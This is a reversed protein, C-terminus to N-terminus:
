AEPVGLLSEGDAKRYAERARERSTEANALLEDFGAQDRLTEFWPDVRLPLPCYFGRGVVVDRMVDLAERGAGARSLVRAFYFHFEPDTLGHPVSQRYLGVCEDRRGEIAAIIAQVYRKVNGEATGKADVRAVRLAHEDDESLAKLFDRDEVEDMRGVQFYTHHVSTVLGPDLRLGREHAAISAEYLGCFRCAAVLGGFLEAESVRDRIRALLRTMVGIPDSGHELEFFAYYRHVLPMDPHLEIARRFAEEAIRLHEDSDALGFKAIKRCVRGYRAWAPAFTPDEDLCSRLLDRLATNLTRAYGASGEMHIARLFLEYARPTAPVDRELSARERPSLPIRIGEVVRRTLEDQLEFLDGLPVDEKISWVVTGEPVEVLQASLRVKPGASLLSGRLAFDVRVESALEQLDPEGNEVSAVGTSRVVLHELGALSAGIAEPLSAALFDIEPDPRLLRFPLAVFRFIQGATAADAIRQRGSVGTRYRGHASALAEATVAASEYRDGPEKALAKRVVADLWEIGPPGAIPPPDEFACAHFVDLPDDGPFAYGGALMEYLIAGFSFIDTWPGMERVRWQEPAMYHPTGVIANEQTLRTGPSAERPVTLSFDLLKVGHPTLFVNGPKLDRHILGRGHLYGLPALIGLGVEIAERVRFRSRDLREALTEGELLEMAVWLEGEEERVDFVQCIGPHSLGAAARAERLLRARSVADSKAGLTKIAVTRDLREDVAAYVVGM